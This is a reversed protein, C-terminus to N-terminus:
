MAIIAYKMKSENPVELARILFRRGLNVLPVAIATFCDISFRLSHWSSCSLAITSVYHVYHFDSLKLDICGNQFCLLEFATYNRM